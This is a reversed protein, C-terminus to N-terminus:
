RELVCKWGIGEHYGAENEGGSEGEASQAGLRLPGRGRVARSVDADRLGEAGADRARDTASRGVERVRPLM